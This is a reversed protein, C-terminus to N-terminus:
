QIHAASLVNGFIFILILFGIMSHMKVYSIFWCIIPFERCECLSVVGNWNLIRTKERRRLTASALDCAIM